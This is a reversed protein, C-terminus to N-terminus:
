EEGVRKGREAIEAFLQEIPNATVDLSGNVQTPLVKGMLTMFPAPNEKAQQTLYGVIGEGDGAAEAAELISDKLLATTANPTGKKRGGTKKRTGGVKSKESAM